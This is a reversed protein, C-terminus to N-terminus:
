EDGGEKMQLPLRLMYKLAAAMREQDPNFTRIVVVNDEFRRSTRSPETIVVTSKPLEVLDDLPNKLIEQKKTQM